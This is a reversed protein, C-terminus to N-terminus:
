LFSNTDNIKPRYGNYRFTLVQLLFIKVVTENDNMDISKSNM